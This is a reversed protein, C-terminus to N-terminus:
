AKFSLVLHLLYTLKPTLKGNQTHVYYTYIQQEGLNVTFESRESCIM